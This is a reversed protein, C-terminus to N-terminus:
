GFSEPACLYNQHVWIIAGGVRSFVNAARQVLKEQVVYLRLVTKSHNKKMIFLQLNQFVQDRGHFAKFHYHLAQYMWLNSLNLFSFHKMESFTVSVRSGRPKHVINCCISDM